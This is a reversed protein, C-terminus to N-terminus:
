RGLLRISMMVFSLPRLGSRIQLRTRTPSGAALMPCQMVRMELEEITLADTEPIYLNAQCVEGNSRLLYLDGFCEKRDRPLTALSGRWVGMERAVRPPSVQSFPCTTWWRKLALLAAKEDQRVVQMRFLDAKKQSKTKTM